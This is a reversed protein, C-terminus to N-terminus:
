NVERISITRRHCSGRTDKDRRWGAPGLRAFGLLVLRWISAEPVASGPVAFFQLVGTISDVITPWIAIVQQTLGRRWTPGCKWPQPFISSPRRSRRLGTM